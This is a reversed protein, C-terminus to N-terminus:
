GFVFSANLRVIQVRLRILPLRPKLETESAAIEEQAATIM